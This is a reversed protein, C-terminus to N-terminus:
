AMMHRMSTNEILHFQPYDLDYGHTSLHETMENGSNEEKTHLKLTDMPNSEAEIMSPTCPAMGFLVANPGLHELHLLSTM